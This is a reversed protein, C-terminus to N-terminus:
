DKEDSLNDKTPPNKPFRKKDYKIKNFSKGLSGGVSVNKRITERFHKDQHPPEAAVYWFFPQLAYDSFKLEEEVKKFSYNLVMIKPCFVALDSHDLRLPELNNMLTSPTKKAKLLEHFLSKQISSKM